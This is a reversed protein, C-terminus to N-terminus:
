LLLMTMSHVGGYCGTCKQPQGSLVWLGVLWLGLYKSVDKCRYWIYVNKNKNGSCYAVSMTSIKHAEDMVWLHSLSESLIVCTSHFCPAM